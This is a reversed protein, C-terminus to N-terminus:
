ENRMLMRIPSAKCVDFIVGSSNWRHVYEMGDHKIYNPEHIVSREGHHMEGPQEMLCSVCMAIAARELAARAVSEFGARIRNRDEAPCDDDHSYPLASVHCKESCSLPEDLKAVEAEVIGPIVNRPLPM